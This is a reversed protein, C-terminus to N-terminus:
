KEEARPAPRAHRLQVVNASPPQNAAAIMRSVTRSLQALEFPKRVVTFEVNAEALSQSYGTVLLVPLNPKRERIARALAIGDMAGAMVIDSIVLDFDQKGIRELATDADGAAHAQYGLQELMSVTVEAVEPNDEVVLVSGGGRTETEPEVQAEVTEMTRPLYITVTTGKGLTSDITVTGGSQHSFGHVQSLGLGSGKNVEKTTFFPDFIKPLLDPAIGSGTDTVRLAAFDGEIGAATDQRSLTVNEATIAILGGNPMADRANLVLNVLALELESADVKIPWITGDIASTLKVAGGISSTLMM